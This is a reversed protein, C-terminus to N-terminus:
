RSIGVATLIEELGVTPSGPVVERWVKESMRAEQPLISWNPSQEARLWKFDDVNQWQNMKSEDQTILYYAPLPAFRIGTCDEIIPRSTCLTYISCNSSNHVRLQHTSVVITCNTLNTIHTAGTVHGCILLCDKISKLTLTQLSRRDSYTADTNHHDLDVICHTLNSLTGSGTSNSASIPLLIHMNAEDAIMVNPSNYSSPQDSRSPEAAPTGSAAIGTTVAAEETHARIGPPPTIHSYAAKETGQGDVYDGGQRRRESNLEAPGQLSMASENKKATSMSDKELGAGGKNARSTFAFKKRPEFRAREEQLKLGLSKIAEGYTRQDYAPIYSSADKVEQNLRAISALCQDVADGRESGSISTTSLGSILAKIDTMESQFYRFFKESPTLDKAHRPLKDTDGNTPTSQEM